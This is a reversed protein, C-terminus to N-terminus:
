QGAGERTIRVAQPYATSLLELGDLMAEVRGDQRDGGPLRLDAEGKEMRWCLGEVNLKQLGYVCAQLLMSAAACVIDCGATGMMAHGQMTVRWGAGDRRAKVEIMENGETEGM